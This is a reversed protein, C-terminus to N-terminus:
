LNREMAVQNSNCERLKPNTFYEDGPNEVVVLGNKKYFEIGSDMESYTTLIMKKFGNKNCFDVCESLLEKGIGKSQFEPLVYMRKLKAWGDDTKKIAVCGVIEGEEEAVFFAVYFRFDEWKTVYFDCTDSLVNEILEKVTGEDKKEYSRVKM